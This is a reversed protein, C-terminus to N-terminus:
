RGAANDPPVPSAADHDIAVTEADPKGDPPHAAIKQQKKTSQEVKQEPTKGQCAALTLFALCLIARLM